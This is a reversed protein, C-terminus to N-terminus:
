NIKNKEWDSLWQNKDKAVADIVAQGSQFSDFTGENIEKIVMGLINEYYADPTLQTSTQSFHQQNEDSALKAYLVKVQSILEERNMDRNM